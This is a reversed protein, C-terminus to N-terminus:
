IKRQYKRELSQFNKRKRSLKHLNENSIAESIGLNYNAQWPFQDYFEFGLSQNELNDSIISPPYEHLNWVGKNIRKKGDFIDGPKLFNKNKHLNILFPFKLLVKKPINKYWRASLQFIFDTINKKKQGFSIRGKFFDNEFNQSFDISIVTFNVDTKKFVKEIKYKNKPILKNEVRISFLENNINKIFNLKKLFINKDVDLSINLSGLSFDIFKKKDTFKNQM